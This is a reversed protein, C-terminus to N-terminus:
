DAESDPIEIKLYEMVRRMWAILGEDDVDLEEKLRLMEKELKKM